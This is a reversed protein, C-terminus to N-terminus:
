PLLRPFFRRGAITRSLPKATSSADGFARLATGGGTAVNRVAL